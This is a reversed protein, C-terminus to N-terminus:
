LYVPCLPETSSKLGNQKKYLDVVNSLLMAVTMPGVGGPVPTIWSVRHKVREFDVDGALGEPTRNTGVDIVIAGPKLMEATIYKPRGAAVILIDADAIYEKADKGDPISYHTAAGCDSLMKILPEAFIGSNGIITAIKDKLTVRAMKILEIIGLHVGPYIYPKGALLLAINGPHFGDADKKLDIANIIKDTDYGSPLPLQVLIGNIGKQRNLDKVRSIIEEAPAGKSYVGNSITGASVGNSVHGRIPSVRGSPQPPSNRVPYIFKQFNIGVEACAKEKLTVYLNSAPDDGILIVALGPSLDHDIIDDRIGARIEAALKKGDLLQMKM